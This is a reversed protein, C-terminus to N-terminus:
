LRVGCNGQSFLCTALVEGNRTIDFSEVGIWFLATHGVLQLGYIKDRCPQPPNRNGVAADRLRLCMGNPISTYLSSGWDRAEWQAASSVFYVGELSLTQGSQNLLSFSVDDYLLLVTPAAEITIPVVQQTATATPFIPTLTSRITAMSPAAMEATAVVQNPLATPELPTHTPALTLTVIVPTPTPRNVGIIAPVVGIIAVLVTVLGGIISAIIQPNTLVREQKPPLQESM